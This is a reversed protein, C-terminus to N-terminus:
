LQKYRPRVGGRSIRYGLYICCICVKENAWAFQECSRRETLRASDQTSSDRGFRCWRAHIHPLASRLYANFVVVFSYEKFFM